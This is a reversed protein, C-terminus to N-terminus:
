KRVVANRIIGYIYKYLAAVIWSGCFSIPVTVFFLWFYETAETIRRGLYTFIVANIAAQLLYIELSCNSISRVVTAIFGNKINIDYLILFVCASAVAVTLANQGNDVLALYGPTFTSGYSYKITIIGNVSTCVLAIVALLLRNYRPRYERIYAGAFYYTLPYLVQFYSPFVYQVLPYMMTILILSIILINHEKKDCSSWIKNLFPCLLMLGIYMGVYWAAEYNLLQKVASEPTHITGYIYNEVLMRISCLIIYSIIIPILSMYHKKEPKKRCKLYGTAMLFLPVGMIFFWRGFTMVYMKMSIVPARYYGISLYFHVSVVALTAFAKVIDLGTERDRNMSKMWKKQLYKFGHKICKKKYNAKYFVTYCIKYKLPGFQVIVYDKIYSSLFIISKDCPSQKTINQRLFQQM